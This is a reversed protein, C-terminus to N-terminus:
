IDRRLDLADLTAPDETSRLWELLAPYAAPHAAIASWLDPRSQALAALDTATAEPAIRPTPALPPPVPGPETDVPPAPAFAGWDQGVAETTPVVVTPLSLPETEPVSSTSALRPSPENVAFNQVGTRIKTRLETPGLVLLLVILSVVIPTIWGSAEAAYDSSAAGIIQVLWACIFYVALAIMAIRTPGPRWLEAAALGTAGASVMLIFTMVILSTVTTDLQVMVAILTVVTAASIITLLVMFRAAASRTNDPSTLSTGTRCHHGATAAAAGAMFYTVGYFPAHSSEGAAYSLFGLSSGAGGDGLTLLDVATVLATLVGATLIWPASGTIIGLSPLGIMAFVVISLLLMVATFIGADWPQHILTTVVLAVLGIISLIKAAVNWAVDEATPRAARRELLRPAISLVIGVLGAMAGVGIGADSYFEGFDNGGTAIDDVALILFSIVWPAVLGYRVLRNYGVDWNPGFAGARSLHQVGPAVAAVLSSLVVWWHDSGDTSLTWPTVITSLILLSALADRAVDVPAVKAQPRTPEHAATTM